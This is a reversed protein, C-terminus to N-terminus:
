KQEELQSNLQAVVVVSQGLDKKQSMLKDYMEKITIVIIIIVVFLLSLILLLLLLLLLIIINIILCIIM